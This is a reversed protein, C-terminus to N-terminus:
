ATMGRLFRLTDAAADVTVAVDTEVSLTKNYGANCLNELREAHVNKKIEKLFSRGSPSGNDDSIHVHHLIPLYPSIDIDAEGSHEMNYYDAILRIYPHDLQYVLEAAESITNIFNCYCYGLAEVCVIIDAEAFVDATVRFFEHAQKNALTRSFGDPLTRSMPSGIGVHKVNLKKARDALSKAYRYANPADFGIGAIVVEPPCYANLGLCRVGHKDLKKCVTNFEQNGLSHILWGSMEIYDYGCSVLVETEAPRSTCGILLKAGGSVILM